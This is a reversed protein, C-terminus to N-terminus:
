QEYWPDLTECEVSGGCDTLVLREAQGVGYGALIGDLEAAVDAFAEAGETEPYERCEVPRPAHTRPTAPRANLARHRALVVTDFEYNRM